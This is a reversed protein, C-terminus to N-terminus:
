IECIKGEKLSLKKCKINLKEHLSMLITKNEKIKQLDEIYKKQAHIDLGEFPEDLLLNDCDSLLSAIIGIKQLMGKSCKDININPLEYRNLYFNIMDKGNYIKLITELFDKVKLAKPLILKEPLYFINGLITINGDYKIIRSISKFLSSKGSGNEGYILYIGNEFDYSLDNLIVKNYYINLKNIKIM